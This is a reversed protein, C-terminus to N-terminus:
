RAGGKGALITPTAILTLDEPIQNLQLGDPITGGLHFQLERQKLKPDSPQLSDNFQQLQLM